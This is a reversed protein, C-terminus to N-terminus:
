KEKKRGSPRKETVVPLPKDALIEKFRKKAAVV